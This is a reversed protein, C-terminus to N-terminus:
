VRAKNWPYLNIDKPKLEGM